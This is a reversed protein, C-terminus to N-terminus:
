LTYIIGQYMDMWKKIRRNAAAKKYVRDNKIFRIIFMDSLFTYFHPAPRSFNPYNYIQKKVLIEKNIEEEVCGAAFFGNRVCRECRKM